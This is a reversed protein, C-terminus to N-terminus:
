YVRYMNSIDITMATALRVNIKEVLVRLYCIYMKVNSKQLVRLIKPMFKTVFASYGQVYGFRLYNIAEIIICM